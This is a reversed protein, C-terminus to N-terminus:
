NKQYSGHNTAPRHTPVTLNPCNRRLHNPSQCHWCLRPSTISGRSRSFHRDNSPRYGGGCGCQMRQVMMEVSAVLTRLAKHTFDEVSAAVPEDEETAAWPMTVTSLTKIARIEGNGVGVGDSRFMQQLGIAAQIVNAPKRIRSVWAYQPPLGNHYCAVLFQHGVNHGKKAAEIAQGYTVWTQDKRKVIHSMAVRIDDITEIATRSYQDRLAKGGYGSSAWLAADGDPKECLFAGHAADTDIPINRSRDYGRVVINGSNMRTSATKAKKSPRAIDSGESPADSNPLQPVSQTHDEDQTEDDTGRESPSVTATRRATTARRAKRQPSRAM